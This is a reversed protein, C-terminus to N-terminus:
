LGCENLCEDELFPNPEFVKVESSKLDYVENGTKWLVDMEEM